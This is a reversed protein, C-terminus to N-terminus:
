VYTFRSSPFPARAYRPGGNEEKERRRGERREEEIPEGFGERADRVRRQEATWERGGRQEAQSRERM